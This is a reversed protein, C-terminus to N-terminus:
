GHAYCLDFSGRILRSIKQEQNVNSNWMAEAQRRVSCEHSDCSCPLVCMKYMMHWLCFDAAQRLPVVSRCTGCYHFTLYCFPCSHFPPRYQLWSSHQLIICNFNENCAYLLDRTLFFLKRNTNLLVTLFLTALLLREWSCIGWYWLFGRCLVEKELLHSELRRLKQPEQVEHM